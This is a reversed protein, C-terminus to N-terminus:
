NNPVRNTGVRMRLPSHTPPRPLHATQIKHAHATRIQPQRQPKNEEPPTQQASPVEENQGGRRVAPVQPSTLHPSTLHPSTLHPSTLHPSTLHPSTRQTLHPSTLHTSHPSSTRHPSTLHPSTLHPSTLHPSTLHPSTLHPSTLHPSTLHPSTLHGQRDRPELMMRGKVHEAAM